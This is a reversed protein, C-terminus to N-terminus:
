NKRVLVSQEMMMMQSFQSQNKPSHVEHAAGVGEKDRSHVVMTTRSVCVLM